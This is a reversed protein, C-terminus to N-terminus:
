RSPSHFVCVIISGAAVHSSMVLCCVAFFDNGQWLSVCYIYPYEGQDDSNDHDSTDCDTLSVAASSHDEASAATSSSLRAAELFLDLNGAM